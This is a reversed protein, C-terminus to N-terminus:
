TKKIKSGKKESLDVGILDLIFIVMTIGLLLGWTGM